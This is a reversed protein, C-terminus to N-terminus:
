MTQLVSSGLTIGVAVSVCAAAVRVWTAALAHRQSVANAAVGTLLSVLSMGAMTGVGFAALYSVQEELRSSAAVLLVVVAGSGALGHAIGFALAKPASRVQEPHTHPHHHVHATAHQPGLAARHRKAEVFLTGVGLLILLAAVGLEATHYFREPVHIGLIILATAVVAVSLTHGVGWALGLRAAHRAGRERTALTTVAALHDPEFAHRFGVVFGIGVAPLLLEIVFAENLHLARGLGFASLTRHIRVFATEKGIPRVGVALDRIAARSQRERM